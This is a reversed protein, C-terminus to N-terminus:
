ECRLAVMPDVRLACSHAGTRDRGHLAGPRLVRLILMDLTGPIMVNKAVPNPM